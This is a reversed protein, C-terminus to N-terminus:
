KYQSLLSEQGLQYVPVRTELLRVGDRTLKVNCVAPIRYRIQVAKGKAKNREEDDPFQLEEPELELYYPVGKNGDPVPGNDTLRFALYRQVRQSADPIVDFCVTYHRKVSKGKFLALYEKEIRDLEKLAAGMAEGSYSADTNGSVINLRDKRVSLIMEAAEAAKDEQSKAQKVKHEVPVQIASEETQLTKYSIRTEEKSPSTVTGPFGANASPLFRWSTQAAEARNQLAVLGQASLALLTANEADCTYLAKTDAETRPIIEIATVSSSVASQDKVDMNLFKHAYAAYPGAFFDEQQVEVKVTLTTSPLAYTVEQARAASLLFLLAALSIIIRKM